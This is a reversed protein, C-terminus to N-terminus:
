RDVATTCCEKCKKEAKGTKGKAKAYFCIHSMQEGVCWTVRKLVAVSSNDERTDEDKDDSMM